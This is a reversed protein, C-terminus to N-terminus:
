LHPWCSDTSIACMQLFSWTDRSLLCNLSKENSLSIWFNLGVLYIEVYKKFKSIIVRWCCECKPKSISCFISLSASYETSSVCVIPLLFEIGFLQVKKVLLSINLKTIRLFNVHMINFIGLACMINHKQKELYYICLKRCYEGNVKNAM